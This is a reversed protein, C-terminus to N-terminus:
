GPSVISLVIVKRARFTRGTMADTFEVLVDLEQGPRLEAGPAFPVIAKYHDTWFKGYWAQRILEPDGLRVAGIQRSGEAAVHDFLKITIRGGRKLVDGDRDVPRFYVVAADDGPRGDSDKGSTIDLIELRDIAFLPELPANGSARLNTLQTELGEITADRKALRTELDMNAVKVANLEQNLARFKEAEGPGCGSAALAGIWCLGPGFWWGSAAGSRLVSM